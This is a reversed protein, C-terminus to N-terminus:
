SIPRLLLMGYGFARHRGLGQALVRTFEDPDQITLAGEILAQPRVIQHIHRQHHTSQTQRALKVLRFGILRISDIKLAKGELKETAWSCYVAERDLGTNDPESDAQILFLDKEVGTRAKRGVPCCLIQFRLRRGTQWKPMLRSASMTEPDPCVQLVSPEAFELIRKRLEAADHSAYGLIRPPRHNDVLLRWPKPALEGFAAKLWAHLGYGLETEDERGLFGQLRLFKHLAMMDFQIEIMYLSRM